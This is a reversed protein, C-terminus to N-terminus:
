GHSPDVPPLADMWKEPALAEVTMPRAFHWGQGQDCTLAELAKSTAEDEVGEAVVQFGLRHALEITSTVLTNHRTSHTLRRVFSTDIKITKLPLDVLHTMAAYGTGFDDLSLHIGMAELRLLIERAREPDELFASETIELELNGPSLHRGKLLDEFRGLFNRDALCRPSLNVALTSTFGKERWRERQTLSMELVALTLDTIRHAAEALPIFEAPSVPGLEPHDWRCLVEMGAPKQDSLRIKPQYVLSLRHNRIHEELDGLLVQRRPLDRLRAPDFFTVGEKSKRSAGLAGDAARWLAMADRAHDPFLAVGMRGQVNLRLGAIAMPQGLRERISSLWTSIDRDELTGTLLAFEDGSTRALFAGHTLAMHKLRAAVEVLVKDGIDPGLSENLERFRELNLLILARPEGRELAAELQESIRRRNHLGTLPDFHAHYALRERSEERETIDQFVHVLRWPQGDADRVLSLVQQFHRLRGSGVRHRVAALTPTAPATGWSVGELRHWEGQPLLVPLNKGVLEELPKEIMQCFAPNATLIKQELDCEVMGVAAHDALVRLRAEAQHRERQARNLHSIETGVAAVVRDGGHDLAFRTVLLERVEDGGPFVFQTTRSGGQELVEKDLRHVVVSMGEGLIEEDRRGLWGRPPLSFFKEYAGNAFLIKGAPSKLYMLAPSHAIFDLLRHDAQRRALEGHRGDSILILISTIQGEWRVPIFRLASPLAGPALALDMDEGEGTQFVRETAAALRFRDPMPVEGDWRGGAVPWKSRNTFLLMGERNVQIIRDPISTLTERWRSETEKMSVEALHMATVDTLEVLFGDHAHSHVSRCLIWHIGAPDTHWIALLRPASSAANETFYPVLAPIREGGETLCRWAAPLGEVGTLQSYSIGLHRLAAPNAHRVDGSEGVQLIGVGLAEILERWRSESALLRLASVRRATIDVLTGQHIREGSSGTVRMQGRCELWTRGGGPLHMELELAFPAEGALASGELAKKFEAQHNEDFRTLLTEIRDPFGEGQWGCIRPVNATFALRGHGDIEWVGVAAGDLAVQLRWETELLRELSASREELAQFTSKRQRKLLTTQYSVVGTIYYFLSIEVLYYGLAPPRVAPVPNGTVVFFIGVATLTVAAFGAGVAGMASASTVLLAAGGLGFSISYLGGYLFSGSVVTFTNVAVVMLAAPRFKGFRYFVFATAMGLAMFVVRIQDGVLPNPRGLLASILPLTLLGHFLILFHVSRSEFDRDPGLGSIPALWALLPRTPMALPKPRGATM